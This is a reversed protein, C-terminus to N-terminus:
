GTEDQVPLSKVHTEFLKRVQSVLRWLASACHKAGERRITTVVIFRLTSSTIYGCLM